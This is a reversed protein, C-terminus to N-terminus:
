SPIGVITRVQEPLSSGTALGALLSLKTSGGTVRSLLASELDINTADYIRRAWPDCVYSGHATVECSKLKPDGVICIAHDADFTPTRTRVGDGTIEVKGYGSDMDLSKGTIAMTRKTITAAGGDPDNTSGLFGYVGIPRVSPYKFAIWAFALSAMSICNGIRSRQAVTAWALCDILGDSAIGAEAIQDEYPIKTKEAADFAEATIQDAVRNAAKVLMQDRVYQDAQRAIAFNESMKTEMKPALSKSEV